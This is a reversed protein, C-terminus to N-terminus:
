TYDPWGGVLSGHGPRVPDHRAPMAEADICPCNCVLMSYFKPNFQESAAGDSSGISDAATTGSTEDFGWHHAVGASGPELVVGGTAWWTSGSLNAQFSDSAAPDFEKQYQNVNMKKDGTGFASSGNLSYGASASDVTKDKSGLGIVHVSKATASTLTLDATNSKAGASCSGSEGDANAGTPDIISGVGSYRSLVASLPKENSASHFLQAQFASGPSGQATWVLMNSKNKTGCQAIQQTWTLGGGTVNSVGLNGWLSISLVYTQDTGGNISPLALPSSSGDIGGTVTQELIIQGVASSAAMVLVCLIM